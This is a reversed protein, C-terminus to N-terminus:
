LSSSSFSYTQACRVKYYIKDQASALQVEKEFIDGVRNLKESKSWNDFTGTM